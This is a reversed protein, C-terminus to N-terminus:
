VWHCRASASGGFSRNTSPTVVVPVESSAALPPFMSRCLLLQATPKAINAAIM